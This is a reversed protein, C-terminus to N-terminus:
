FQFGASILLSHLQTTRDLQSRSRGLIRKVDTGYELKIPLGLKFILGVGTSVRLPPFSLPPPPPDNPNQSPSSRLVSEYVQGADVFVEGWLWEKFLPFRYDTNILAIGQGGIPITEYLNQGGPDLAPSYTGDPNRQLLRVDGTPGLFDPEVGRQTGAGGGFFRETLPLQHSTSATPRAIGVRLGLSVVGAGARYGLPWTWQHRLDLKVFSANKSTGFLQNALELHAVSISGSTPDYPSDRTDRVWEIYPASITSLAPSKTIINLYDPSLTFDVQEGPRFVLRNTRVDAREFRHGIRLVQGAELKWELSNLLRRRRILYATQQEQIYAATVQYLAREPLLNTLFGPSFWPDTYGMTYSDVSRAFDGTPFWRRLTPNGITGDGARLGMDLTRGMGQFNLRQVGYGFSYGTSNDYGFSESFVWHSREELRLALDGEDWPNEADEKGGRPRVEKLGVLDVRKFAGLDGLNAQARGVQDLNLPKGISLDKTERFVARAKTEDSGRVALRRVQQLPQSPIELHITAGTEDEEFHWRVVPHLSGLAAVSRNLARLVAELDPKVYPVPRETVLRLVRTPKGVEAPLWELDATLGKFEKRDSRYRRRQPLVPDLLIPNDAVAKLLNEGLAWADWPAGQPIELFIAKVARKPGERINLVLAPEGGKVDMRRRLRVDSFGSSLYRNKIRTEVDDLLDPTAKPPWLWLFGSPLDAEQRLDRDSFEQNGEFVLRKVYRREGLKIHYLIRVEAPNESTGSVIERVHSADVDLYGKGRFYRIIGRDGEDMLEPGYRDARTLPVLEKLTRQSLNKGEAALRVIPGANVQIRLTGDSSFSLDARGELRKDKIFRRRLARGASRLLGQTSLTHGRAINAAKELQDPRYAGLNGEVVVSKILSAPGLEVRIALHAGTLDSSLTIRGQPYGQDRLHAEAQRQWEERRQPGLRLGKRLDPLLLNQDKRPLKDGEWSWASLPFVPDLRIRAVPGEPGNELAGRVSLFRDTARIAELALPFATSGDLPKGRVLGSAAEAFVRDDASGGEWIFGKFPAPGQLPFAQAPMGLSALISVLASAGAGRM